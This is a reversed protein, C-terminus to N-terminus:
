VSTLLLFSILSFILLSYFFICSSSIKFCLLISSCLGSSSWLLVNGFPSSVKSSVHSWTKNSIPKGTFSSWIIPFMGLCSQLGWGCSLELNLGGGSALFLSIRFKKVMNLVIKCSKTWLSITGQGVRFFRRCVNREWKLSIVQWVTRQSLPSHCSFQSFCALHDERFVQFTLFDLFWRFKLSLFTQYQSKLSTKYVPSKQFGTSTPFILSRALPSTEKTFLRNTKPAHRPMPSSRYCHPEEDHHLAIYVFYIYWLSYFFFSRPHIRNYLYRIIWM